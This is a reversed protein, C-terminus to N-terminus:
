RDLFQRLQALANDPDSMLPTTAAALLLAGAIVFPWGAMSPACRAKSGVAVLSKELRLWDQVNHLMGVHVVQQVRTAGSPERALQIGCQPLHIVEGNWVAEPDVERSAELLVAQFQREDMGYVILRPRASLLIMMLALMYLLFLALWVWAHWRSAAQSPFFLQMPGIAVFGSAAIGLTLTDRWGTTVLPRRRLRLAGILIIYIAIPIIAIAFQVAPM